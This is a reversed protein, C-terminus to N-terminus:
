GAGRADRRKHWAYLVPALADDYIVGTVQRVVPLGVVWALWRYRPMERWLVLFAPIGAYIKGGQMVHLRKAAEDRSVGWRALDCDSLDDYVLPLARAQSYKAYHDIEVSCVPCDGNYLIRTDDKPM